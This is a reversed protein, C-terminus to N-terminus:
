QPQYSAVELYFISKKFYQYYPVLKYTYIYIYLWIILVYRWNTSLIWSGDRGYNFNCVAAVQDLM